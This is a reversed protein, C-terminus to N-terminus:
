RGIFSEHFSIQADESSRLARSRMGAVSRPHGVTRRRRGMGFVEDVALQCSRDAGTEPNSACLPGVM